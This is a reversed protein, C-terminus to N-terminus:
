QTATLSNEFQSQGFSLFSKSSAVSGLDALIGRAFIIIFYCAYRFRLLNNGVCKLPIQLDISNKVLKQIDVIFDAAKEKGSYPYWIGEAQRYQIDNRMQSLWAPNAGNNSLLNIANNIQSRLDQKDSSLYAAAQIAADLDVLSRNFDRWIAEHTGGNGSEVTMRLCPKTLDISLHFLGTNLKFPPTVGYVALTRRITMLDSTRFYNPSKGWIRLISHAYFLAAYYLKVYSWGLSKPITVNLLVNHLTESAATATRNIDCAFAQLMQRQDVGILEIASGQIDPAFTATMMWDKVSSTPKGALSVFGSCWLQRSSEVLDVM